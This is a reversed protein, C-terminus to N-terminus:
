PAAWSKESYYQEVSSSKGIDNGIPLYVTLLVMLPCLLTDRQFLCCTSVVVAM